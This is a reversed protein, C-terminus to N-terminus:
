EGRQASRPGRSRSRRRADREPATHGYGPPVLCRPNRGILDSRGAARLAERALPWHKPDWWFLLAKMRRKDRLDKAVPV